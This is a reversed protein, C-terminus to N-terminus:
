LNGMMLSENAIFHGQPKGFGNGLKLLIIKGFTM